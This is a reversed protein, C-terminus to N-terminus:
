KKEEKSVTKIFSILLIIVCVVIASDAVNFTPWRELGFIGFFKVDIFDLVGQSRFIRDYINGLGGGIIGCICWRQLNSFDKNRFYIGIVVGIIILPALALIVSRFADPLNHGLSFAAGTNNIHVIRILDGFFSAGITYPPINKEILFKSLHDLAFVLITLSFPLVKSILFDKKNTEQNM